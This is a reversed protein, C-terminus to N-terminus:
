PREKTGSRAWRVMHKCFQKGQWLSETALKPPKCAIWNPSSIKLNQIELDDHGNELGFPVWFRLQEAQFMGERLVQGAPFTAVLRWYPEPVFAQIEVKLPRNPFLCVGQKPPSGSIKWVDKLYFGTFVHPNGPSFNPHNRFKSTTSISTVWDKHQMWQSM